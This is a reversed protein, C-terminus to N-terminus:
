GIKVDIKTAHLRYEGKSDEVHLILGKLGDSITAGEACYPLETTYYALWSAKKDSAASAWCNYGEIAQHGNQKIWKRNAGEIFCQKAENTSFTEKGSGHLAIFRDCIVEYTFAGKGIKRYTTDIELRLIEQKDLMKREYHITLHSPTYQKAQKVALMAKGRNQFGVGYGITFIHTLAIAVIAIVAVVLANHKKGIM